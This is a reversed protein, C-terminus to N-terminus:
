KKKQEKQWETRLKSYIATSRLGKGSAALSDDRMIGDLKYGCRKALNISPINDKDICMQIRNIGRKFFEAELALVAETMYGKGTYEEAMYYGIEGSATKYDVDKMNVQGILEGNKLFINYDAEKLEHWLQSSKYCKRYSIEPTNEKWAFGIWKRLFKINQQILNSFATAMEFTATERGKLILRKTHIQTKFKQQKMEVIEEM